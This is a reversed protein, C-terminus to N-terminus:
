GSSTEPDPDVIESDGLMIIKNSASVLEAYCEADNVFKQFTRSNKIM